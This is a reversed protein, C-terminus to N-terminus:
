DKIELFKLPINQSSGTKYTHPGSNIECDTLYIFHKLFNKGDFDRHFNLANDYGNKKIIEDYKFESKPAVTTDCKVQVSIDSLSLIM